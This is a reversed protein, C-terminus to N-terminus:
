GEKEESATGTTGTNASDRMIATVEDAHARLRQPDAPTEGIDHIELPSAVIREVTMRPNLSGFPDQFVFQLKRRFAPMATIRRALESRLDEFRYGGEVTGPDVQIRVARAGLRRVDTPFM